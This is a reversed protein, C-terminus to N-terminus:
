VRGACDLQTSFGFGADRSVRLVRIVAGIEPLEKGVLGIM